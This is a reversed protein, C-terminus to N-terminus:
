DGCSFGPHHISIHEMREERVGVNPGKDCARAGVSTGVSMCPLIYMYLCM